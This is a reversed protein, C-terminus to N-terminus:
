ELGSDSAASTPPAPTVPPPTPTAPAPFDYDDDLDLSLDSPPPELQPIGEAALKEIVESRFKWSAGDRYGTVKGAERLESLREKSVGLQAAAEDLTLLKQAM